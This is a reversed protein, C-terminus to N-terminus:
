KGLLVRISIMKKILYSVFPLNLAMSKFLLKGLFGINKSRNIRKSILPYLTQFIEKSFKYDCRYTCRVICESVWQSFEPEFCEMNTYHRRLFDIVMKHNYYLSQCANKDQHHALDTHNIYNYLPKAVYEIREALYVMQVSQVEDESNFHKPFVIQDYISKRVLKNWVVGWIRHSFIDRFFSIKDAIAGQSVIETKQGTHKFYNCYAIDADNKSIATYLEALLEPEMYDDADSMIVYEGSAQHLGQERSKPCGMKKSNHILKIREDKTAYEEAFKPCYNISCDNVLILEFDTFTQNLVAEVAKCFLSEEVLHFPIIVSIKPDNTLLHSDGGKENVYNLMKHNNM